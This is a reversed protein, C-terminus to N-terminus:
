LVGRMTVVVHVPRGHLERPLRALRLRFTVVVLAGIREHLAYRDIQRILDPLSGDVKCEVGVDGLLFDIRDRANLRVERAFTVGAGELVKAIGRQLDAESPARFRHAELLAVIEGANM